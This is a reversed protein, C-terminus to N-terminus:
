IGGSEYWFGLHPAEAEAENFPGQVIMPPEARAGIAMASISFGGTGDKDGDANAIHNLRGSSLGFVVHRSGAWYLAGVCMPCPECSTYVTGHQFDQLQGAQQAVRVLMTEAHATIDNDTNVRNVAELAVKGDVVLLAGFPHDGAAKAIESLEITRLLYASLDQM